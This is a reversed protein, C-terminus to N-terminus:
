RGESAGSKDTYPLPGGGSSTFQVVRCGVVPPDNLGKLYPIFFSGSTDPALAKPTVSEEGTRVRNGDRNQFEVQVQLNNIVQASINKVDGACHPGDSTGYSLTILELSEKLAAPGCSYLFAASLGVIVLFIKRKILTM